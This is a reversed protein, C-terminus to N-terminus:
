TSVKITLSPMISEKSPHVGLGGAKWAGPASLPHFVLEEMMKAGQRKKGMEWKGNGVYRHQGRLRWAM